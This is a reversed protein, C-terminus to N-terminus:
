EKSKSGLCLLTIIILEIRQFRVELYTGSIFMDRWLYVDKDLMTMHEVRKLNEM